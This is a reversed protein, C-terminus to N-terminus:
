QYVFTIVSLVGLNLCIFFLKYKDGQPPYLTVLFLANFLTIFFSHLSLRYSDPVDSIMAIFSWQFLAHITKSM